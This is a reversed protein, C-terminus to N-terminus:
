SLAARARVLWAQCDAVRREWMRMAEYGGAIAGAGRGLSELWDVAREAEAVDRALLARWEHDPHCFGCQGCFPETM